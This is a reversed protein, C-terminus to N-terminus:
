FEEKKDERVTGRMTEFSERSEKLCCSRMSYFERERM